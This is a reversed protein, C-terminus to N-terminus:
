TKNGHFGRFGLMLLELSYASLMKALQCFKGPTISKRFMLALNQSVIRTGSPMHIFQYYRQKTEGVNEHM